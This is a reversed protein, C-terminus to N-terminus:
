KKLDVRIITIISVECKRLVVKLIFITDFFVLAELTKKM